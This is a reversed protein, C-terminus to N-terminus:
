ELAAITAGASEMLEVFTPFTVSLAEATYVTTEGETALGAIALAMIVRHDYHGHVAAAHLPRGHIILGDPLEDLRGGMKTLEERM